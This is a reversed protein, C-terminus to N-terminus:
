YILELIECFYDYAEKKRVEEKVVIDLLELTEDRLNVKVTGIKSNKFVPADLYYLCNCDINIYEDDVNKIVIKKNVIDSLRIKVDNIGKYVSIKKENEQKWKEFKEKVIKEVDVIKFNKYTYNILEVSDTTRIKKTDAGLVVTIIDIDDRKCSTVLCRGAGNTFGTKVGYVGNLYGLLENTNSIAKNRGNISVNYTKTGVINRIKEMNLAYDTIRALEYATTYHEDNDLGHPVVFNTNRLNLSKAKENMLVAFEEVSGAIHNALAVAADNGSELMLGYLLDQVTIKDNTKLGLRSGGTRAAKRDVTVVDTLNSNELVVIATMIKTTSAMKYKEYGNKEYLVRGSVRDYVLAIRSNIKPGDKIEGSVQSSNEYSIGDLINENEIDAWVYMNVNLFLLIYILIVKMKARM